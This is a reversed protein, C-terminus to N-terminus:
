EVQLHLLHRRDASFIAFGLLRSPLGEELCERLDKLQKTLEGLDTM